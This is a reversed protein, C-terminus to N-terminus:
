FMADYGSFATVFSMSGREEVQRRIASSDYGKDAQLIDCKPPRELLAADATCDAVQGSTLMFAIPHCKSDTLAHIM